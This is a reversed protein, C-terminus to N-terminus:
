RQIYAVSLFNNEEKSVGIEEALYALAGYTYMTILTEQPPTYQRMPSQSKSKIM